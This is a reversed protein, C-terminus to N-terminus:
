ARETHRAMFTELMLRQDARTVSSLEISDGDLTLKVSHSHSRTFWDSISRVVQTILEPAAAILLTGLAAVDVARTGEPASGATPRDVSDVDLQLLENRLRTTQADLEVVDGADPDLGIEVRLAFQGGSV